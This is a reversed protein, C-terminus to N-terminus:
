NHTTRPPRRVSRRSTKWMIKLNDTTLHRCVDAKNLVKSRMNSNVCDWMPPVTQCSEQERIKHNNGTGNITSTEYITALQVDKVSRRFGVSSTCATVVENTNRNHVEEMCTRSLICVRELISLLISWLGVFHWASRILAQVDVADSWLLLAFCLLNDQMDNARRRASAEVHM